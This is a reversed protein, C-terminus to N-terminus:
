KVMPLIRTKIQIFSSDCAKLSTFGIGAFIHRSMVGARDRIKAKDEKSLGLDPLHEM